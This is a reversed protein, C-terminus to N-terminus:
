GLLRPVGLTFTVDEAVAGLHRGPRMWGALPGDSAVQVDVVAPRARGKASLRSDGLREGPFEQRTVAKSRVPVRPGVVRPTARVEWAKDDDGRAVITRGSGVGGSFSALTKPMAWNTRGGVLSAPSDVAMFAVHGFTRTLSERVMVIGFVEDYPGVPTELYRVMGGVVVVARSDRLQPALAARAAATPRGTWLVASCNVTWPAESTNEPLAALLGPSLLTEAVGTVGTLEPRPLDTATM